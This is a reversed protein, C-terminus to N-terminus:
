LFVKKLLIATAAIIKAKKLNLLVQKPLITAVAIIATLAVMIKIRAKLAPM